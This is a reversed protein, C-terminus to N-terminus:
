GVIGSTKGFGGTFVTDSLARRERPLVERKAYDEPLVEPEGQYGIAIGTCIDFNDPVGYTERVKDFIIGQAQHVVVGHTAAQMTLQAMAAGTDYYGYDSPRGDPLNKDACTIMLVPATHAWSQNRDNFCGLLTAYADADDRTAVIFRWPQSNNCSAAWRAAEFLSVLVDKPVPKGNFARPSWRDALLPHIPQTTEAPKRLTM